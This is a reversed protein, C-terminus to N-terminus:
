RLMRQRNEQAQEFAEHEQNLLEDWAEYMEQGGVEPDLKPMSHMTVNILMEFLLNQHQQFDSVELIREQALEIVGIAVENLWDACKRLYSHHSSLTGGLFTFLQHFNMSTEDVDEVRRLYGKSFM